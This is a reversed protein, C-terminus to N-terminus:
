KQPPEIVFAKGCGARLILGVLQHLVRSHCRAPNYLHKEWVHRLHLISKAM